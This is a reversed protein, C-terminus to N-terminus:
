WPRPPNEGKSGQVRPGIRDWSLPRRPRGCFGARGGYLLPLRSGAARTEHFIRSHLERFAPTVDLDIATIYALRTNQTAGM